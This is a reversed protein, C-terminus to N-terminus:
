VPKIVGLLTKLRFFDGQKLPKTLIDAIQNHSKVYKYKRKELASKYSIIVLISINAKIM